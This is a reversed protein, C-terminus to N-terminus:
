WVRQVKKLETVKILYRDKFRLQIATFPTTPFFIETMVTLGDDAFLEVSANDIVLTLDILKSNSIRPATHRAAFGKAFAVNGSTTRDIFYNNSNKDYGIVVKEGPKNTLTVSCDNVNEDQLHLVSPGFLELVKSKFAITNLEPSPRSAVYYKDDIKEIRLDRPVTMASRWTQTPVTQAYDCNSIWGMFIKRDNTGSWTVGAYNDPGYDIWR